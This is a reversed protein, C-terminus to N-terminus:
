FHTRDFAIVIIVYSMFSKVYNAPCCSHVVFNSGQSSSNLTDKSNEEVEGTSWLENAFKICFIIMTNYEMGGYVRTLHGVGIGNRLYVHRLISASFM